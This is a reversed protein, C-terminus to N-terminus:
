GDGRLGDSDLSGSLMMEPSCLPITRGCTLQSERLRTSTRLKERPITDL